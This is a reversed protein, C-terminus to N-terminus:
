THGGRDRWSHLDRDGLWGSFSQVDDLALAAVIAGHFDRRTEVDLPELCQRILEVFAVLCEGNTPRVDDRASNVACLIANINYVNMPM